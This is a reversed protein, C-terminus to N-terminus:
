PHALRRRIRSLSEPQIGLYSAIIYQPIRQILEPNAQAFSQYRVDAPIASMDSLREQMGVYANQFRIRIYRDMFPFEQYSRETDEWNISLYETAELAEVSWKAPRRSLFSGLDAIWMKEVAIRIVHKHGKGDIFYSIAAGKVIYAMENCVEGARLMFSQKPAKHLKFYNALGELEKQSLPRGITAEIEQKLPSRVTQSSNRPNPRSSDCALYSFDPKIGM